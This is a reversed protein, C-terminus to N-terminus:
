PRLALLAPGITLAVVVGLLSVVIIAIAVRRLWASADRDLAALEDAWEDPPERNARVAADLDAETLRPPSM